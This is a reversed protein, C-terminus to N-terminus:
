RKRKSADDGQPWVPVGHGTERPLASRNCQCQCSLFFRAKDQLSSLCRASDNIGIPRRLSSMIGPRNGKAVIRAYHCSAANNSLQLPRLRHASSSRRMVYDRTASGAYRDCGSCLPSLKSFKELGCCGDKAIM